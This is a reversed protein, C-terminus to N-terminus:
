GFRPKVCIWKDNAVKISETYEDITLTVEIQPLVPLEAPEVAGPEIEFKEANGLNQWGNDTMIEIKIESGVYIAM